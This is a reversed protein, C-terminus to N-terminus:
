LTKLLYKLPSHLKCSTLRFSKGYYSFSVWKVCHSWRSFKNSSYFSAAESVLVEKWGCGHRVFFNDTLHPQKSSLRPRLLGELCYAGKRFTLERKEAELLPWPVQRQMMRRRKQPRSSGSSRLLM